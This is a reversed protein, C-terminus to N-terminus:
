AREGKWELLGALGASGVRDPLTPPLSNSSLFFGKFPLPSPCPSRVRPPAEHHFPFISPPSFPPCSSSHSSEERKRGKRM